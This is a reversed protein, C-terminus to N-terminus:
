KSRFSYFMYIIAGVVAIGVAPEIFQTFFSSRLQKGSAYPYQENEVFLRQAKRITDSNVKRITDSFKLKEKEDLVQVYLEITAVRELLDNQKSNEDKKPNYDISVVIPRYSIAFGCQSNNRELKSGQVRIYLESIGQNSLVKVFEKEILWDASHKTEPVLLVVRCESDVKVQELVHAAAQQILQSIITLNNPIAEQGSCEQKVVSLLLIFILEFIRIKLDKM